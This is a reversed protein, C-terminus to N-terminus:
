SNDEISLWVRGGGVRFNVGDKAIFAGIPTEINAVIAIDTPTLDANFNNNGMGGAAAPNGITQQNGNVNVPIVWVGDSADTTGAAGQYTVVIKYGGAGADKSLPLENWTNPTNAITGDSSGGPAFWYSSAAAVLKRVGSPNEIYIRYTGKLQASVM